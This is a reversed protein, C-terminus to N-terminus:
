KTAYACALSCNLVCEITDRLTNNKQWDQAHQYLTTIMNNVYNVITTKRNETNKDRPMQNKLKRDQAAIIESETEGKLDGKSLWLLADEAVVPQRDRSRIYQVCLAKIGWIKKLFEGLIETTNIIIKNNNNDDDDDETDGKHLTDAGINKLCVM